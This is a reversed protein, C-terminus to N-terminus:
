ANDHGWVRSRKRSAAAEKATKLETMSSSMLTAWKWPETSNPLSNFYEWGAVGGFNFGYKAALEKVSTVVNDASVYGDGNAPNTLTTAVLRNPDLGFNVISIYQDDPFISGFGSYFQANYWSIESGTTNELQIYDFGSLNGGETLASAVPALTIIFDRGFDQKLRTILHVITEMSTDQEVDLDM